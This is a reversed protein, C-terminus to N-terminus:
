RSTGDIRLVQSCNRLSIVLDGDVLQLSNLHAYNAPFQHEMCDGLYVHDYTSWFFVQDGAPTVEEILSDEAFEMTGYPSGHRDVFESLDHEVPEYAMFIFNGNEKILFDHQDTHQIADTTTVRRVENFDRDLIAIEFDRRAGWPSQFPKPLIAAHSYPFEQNDQPRFHTM